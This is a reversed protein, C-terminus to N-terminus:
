TANINDNGSKTIYQLTHTILLGSIHKNSDIIVLNGTYNVIFQNSNGNIVPQKDYSNSFERYIYMETYLQKLIELTM